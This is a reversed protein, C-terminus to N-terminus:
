TGWEMTWTGSTGNGQNSANVGTVTRTTPDLTGILIIRPAGVSTSGTLYLRNDLGLAGTIEIIGLGLSGGNGSFTGVPSLIVTFAGVDSGTTYNGHYAGALNTAALGRQAFSWVGNEGTDLNQWLGSMGASLNTEWVGNFRIRDGDVLGSAVVSNDSYIAGIFTFSGNLTGMTITLRGDRTVIADLSGLQGTDPNRSSGIGRSFIGTFAGTFQLPITQLTLSSDQCGLLTM